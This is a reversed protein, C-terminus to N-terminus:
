GSRKSATDPPGGALRKKEETMRAGLAKLDLESKKVKPFMETQEEKVHHKVYEGLVTVKADYLEDDPAMAELQKILDKVSQHEVTAEDMLDDQGIARRVEPYFIKEELRAHLKLEACISEVLKAKKESGKAKEFREFMESVRAHDARLMAIADPATKSRARRADRATPKQSQPSSSATSM